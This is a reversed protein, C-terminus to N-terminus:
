FELSQQWRVSTEGNVHHWLEFWQVSEELLIFCSFINRPCSAQLLNSAYVKLTFYFQLSFKFFFSDTPTSMLNYTAGSMYLTLVCLM